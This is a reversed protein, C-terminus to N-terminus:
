AKTVAEVVAPLRRHEGAAIAGGRGVPNNRGLLTLRAIGEAPWGLVLANLLGNRTTYRVDRPGYALREPSSLPFALLRCCIRKPCTVAEEQFIM